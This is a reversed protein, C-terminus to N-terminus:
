KTVQVSAQMYGNRSIFTVGRQKEDIWECLARMEHGHNLQRYIGDHHYIEDFLIICGRHILPDLALLTEKTSSYVITDLHLFGITYNEAKKEDSFAGLADKYGSSAVTLTISSSSSDKFSPRKRADPIAFHGKPVHPLWPEPIGEFTDFLFYHDFINKEKVQSYLYRFINADYTGVEVFAFNKKEKSRKPDVDDFALYNKVIHDYFRERIARYANKGGETQKVEKITSGFVPTNMLMILMKDNTTTTRPGSSIRIRKVEGREGEGGGSKIEGDASSPREAIAFVNPTNGIWGGTKDSKIHSQVGVLCPCTLYALGRAHIEPEVIGSDIHIFETQPDLVRDRITRMGEKNIIMAYTGNLTRNRPIPELTCRRKEPPQIESGKRCKNYLPHGTDYKSAGLMIMQWGNDIASQPITDMGSGFVQQVYKELNETFCVDDELVLIRNYGRELALSAVKHHSLTCGVIGCKTRHGRNRLNRKDWYHRIPEPMDEKCTPAVATVREFNGIGHKEFERLCHAWRDTSTDMNIVMIRDVLKAFPDRRQQQCGEEPDRALEGLFTSAPFARVLHRPAEGRYRFPTLKEDMYRKWDDMDTRNRLHGM